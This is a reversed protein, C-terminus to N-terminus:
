SFISHVCESISISNLFKFVTTLASKGSFLHSCPFHHQRSSGVFVCKFNVDVITIILLINLSFFLKRPLIHFLVNLFIPRFNILYFKFSGFSSSVYSEM